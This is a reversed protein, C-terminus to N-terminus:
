STALIPTDTLRLRLCHFRLEMRATRVSTSSVCRPSASRTTSLKSRTRRPFAGSMMNADSVDTFANAEATVTMPRRQCFAVVTLRGYNTAIEGNDFFVVQTSVNGSGDISATVRQLQNFYATSYGHYGSPDGFDASMSCWRWCWAFTMEAYSYNYGDVPSVALPAQQGNTFEGMYIAEHQLSALKANHNLTQVIAETAAADQVFVSDALDSWAPLAAAMLSSKRRVGITFVEVMGDNSMTADIASTM